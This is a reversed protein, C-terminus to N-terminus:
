LEPMKRATISKLDEKILWVINKGEAMSGIAVSSIINMEACTIRSSSIVSSRTGGIPVEEKCGEVVRDGEKHLEEQACCQQKQLCVRFSLLLFVRRRCRDVTRGDSLASSM